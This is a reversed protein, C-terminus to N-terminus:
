KEKKYQRYWRDLNIAFNAVPLSLKCLPQDPSTEECGPQATVAGEIRRCESQGESVLM